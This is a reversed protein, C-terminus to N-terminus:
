ALGVCTRVQHMVPEATHRAREAGARLVAEIHADDIGNRRDRIPALRENLRAAADRKCDVCGLSANRCGADIEAVRPLPTVLKHLAFVDCVSPDGPDNRRVRQPDTVMAAVKKSVQEPTDGLGITNNYSKSMKRGDTGPIKPAHNLKAQPEVFVRCGYLHHFRRVVERALEIHAVQDEGVPVTDARYLVVDATQLLPYGLFGYTALNHSALNQQLDKYSPVRELWAIPTLMSLILHLEAHLKVDSQRFLVAREPDIGAALWDRVMNKTHEGIASVDEYQTTLAHWDASFFYCEGQTQLELWQDLVGFLHGLHLPGTPRMGSVVRM